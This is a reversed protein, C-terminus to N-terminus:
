EGVILGLEIDLSTSFSSCRELHGGSSVPPEFVYNKTHPLKEILLSLNLWRRSIIKLIVNLKKKPLYMNGLM